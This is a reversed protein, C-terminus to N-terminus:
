VAAGAAIWIIMGLGFLLHCGLLVTASVKWPKRQSRYPLCNLVIVLAVAYEIGAKLAYKTNAPSLVLDDDLGQSMAVYTVPISSAFALLSIGLRLTM